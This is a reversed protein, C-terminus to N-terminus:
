INDEQQQAKKILRNGVEKRFPPDTKGQEVGSGRQDCM